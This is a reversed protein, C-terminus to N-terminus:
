MEIFRELMESPYLTEYMSIFCVLHEKEIFKYHKLYHKMHVYCIFINILDQTEKEQMFNIVQEERLMSRCIALKQDSIKIYIGLNDIKSILTDYKKKTIIIYNTIIYYLIIFSISSIIICHLEIIM